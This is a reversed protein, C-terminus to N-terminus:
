KRKKVKGKRSGSPYKGMVEEMSYLRGAKIDAKAQQIEKRLQQDNIIELTESWSKNKIVKGKM